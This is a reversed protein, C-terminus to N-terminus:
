KWWRGGSDGDDSEADDDPEEVFLSEFPDSPTSDDDRDDGPMYDAMMAEVEDDGLVKKYYKMELLDGLDPKRLDRIFGQMAEQQVEEGLQAAAGGGGGGLVNNALAQALIQQTGPDMGAIGGGGGGGGGSAEQGGGGGGATAQQIAESVSSKVQDDVIQRIRDEGMGSGGGSAHGNERADSVSGDASSDASSEGSPPESNGASMSKAVAVFEEVDSSSVGNDELVEAADDWDQQEVADVFKEADDDDVEAVDLGHARDLQEILQEKGVGVMGAWEDMLADLRPNIENEAESM